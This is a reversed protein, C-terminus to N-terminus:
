RCRDMLERALELPDSTPMPGLAAADELLGWFQAPCLSAANSVLKAQHQVVLRPCNGVVHSVCHADGCQLM